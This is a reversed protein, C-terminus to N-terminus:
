LSDGFFAYAVYFVGVVSLLISVFTITLKAVWTERRLYLWHATSSILVVGYDFYAQHPSSPAWRVVTAGAAAILLNAVLAVGWRAIRM